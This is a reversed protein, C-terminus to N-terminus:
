PCGPVGTAIDANGASSTAGPTFRITYGRGLKTMGGGRIGPDAHLLGASVLQDLSTAGRGHQGYYAEAATDFSKVDSRCGAAAGQRTIGRVAFVVVAGLIGIVVVVVLLELLTFGAQGPWSEPGPWSAPVPSPAPGRNRTGGEPV